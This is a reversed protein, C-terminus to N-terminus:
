VSTNLTRVRHLESPQSKVKDLSVRGVSKFNEFEAEVESDQEESSSSWLEEKERLEYDERKLKRTDSLDGGPQMFMRMEPTEATKPCLMLIQLRLRRNQDHMHDGDYMDGNFVFPRALTKEISKLVRIETLIRVSFRVTEQYLKKFREADPEERRQEKKIATVRELREEILHIIKFVENQADFMKLCRALIKVLNTSTQKENEALKYQKDIIYFQKKLLLKKMQIKLTSRAKAYM